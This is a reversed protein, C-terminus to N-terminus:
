SEYEVIEKIIDDSFGKSTLVEIVRKLIFGRGKKYGRAIMDRVIFDLCQSETTDYGEPINSDCESKYWEKIDQINM